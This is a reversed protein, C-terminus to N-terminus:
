NGTKKRERVQQKELEKLQHKTAETTLKEYSYNALKDFFDLLLNKIGGNQAIVLRKFTNLSFKDKPLAMVSTPSAIIFIEDDVEIKRVQYKPYIKLSKEDVYVQGTYHPGNALGVIESSPNSIDIYTGPSVKILIAEKIVETEESTRGFDNESGEYTTIVERKTCKMINGIFLKTSM